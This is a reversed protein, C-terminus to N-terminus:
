QRGKRSLRLVALYGRVVRLMEEPPMPPTWDEDAKEPRHFAGVWVILGVLYAVAAANQTFTNFKTGFESRVLYGTLTILSILGFGAAIGFPYRRFEINLPKILVAFLAVISLRVLNASSGVDLIMGILPHAEVPPYLLANRVTILLVLAIGGFYFVRFWPVSYFGEYVWRFVEHTAALGLVILLAESTWYVYFYTTYDWASLLRALTAVLGALTYSFFIPFHGRAHRKWLLVM